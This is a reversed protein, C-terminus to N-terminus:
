GSASGYRSMDILRQPHEIRAGIRISRQEAQAGADIMMRWSDRASHGTAVVSCRSARRVWRTFSGWCM